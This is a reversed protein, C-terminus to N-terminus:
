EPYWQAGLSILVMTEVRLGRFFVFDHRIVFAPPQRQTQYLGNRLKCLTDWQKRPTVQSSTLSLSTPCPQHPFIRKQIRQPPHPHGWSFHSCPVSPLVRQERSCLECSPIHTLYDKPIDLMILPKGRVSSAGGPVARKRTTGTPQLSLEM